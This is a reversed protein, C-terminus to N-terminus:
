ELFLQYYLKRYDLEPFDHFNTGYVLLILILPATLLSMDTLIVKMKVSCAVHLSRINIGGAVFTIPLFIISVLSLRRM